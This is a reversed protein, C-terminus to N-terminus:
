FRLFSEQHNVDLVIETGSSSQADGIAVLDNRSNVPVDLGELLFVPRYKHGSVPMGLEGPMKFFEASCPRLMADLATGSSLKM